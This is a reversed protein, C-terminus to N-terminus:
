PLFHVVLNVVMLIVILYMVLKLICLLLNFADVHLYGGKKKLCKALNITAVEEFGCPYGRCPAGGNLAPHGGGIVLCQSVFNASDGGHMEYGCAENGYYACPTCAEHNIGCQHNPTQAYQYAYSVAGNRDYLFSYVLFSIFCIIKM